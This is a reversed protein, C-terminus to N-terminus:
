EIKECDIIDRPRMGKLLYCCSEDEPIAIYKSKCNELLQPEKILRIKWNPIGKPPIFDGIINELSKETLQILLEKLYKKYYDSSRNDRSKYSGYIFYELERYNAILCRKNANVAYSWSWWYEYYKHEGENNSITLLGRRLDDTIDEELYQKIVIRLKKLEEPDFNSLGADYDICYFAFDIKGQFFNTDETSFIIERYANNETILNAKLKEEEMQEKSFSSKISKKSLFKYIDNCGESLEKVLSIVGDFSEPSRIITPRKGTKAIDGRSIVNRIVRMWDRFKIGNFVNAKQLYETQAYFLVKQTYSANNGEYVLATFINEQPAHQWLPFGLELPVNEGYVQCYIELCRSLYNYGKQTFDEARVLDPQRQLKAIKAIRDESKELAM